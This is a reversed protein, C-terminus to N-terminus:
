YIEELVTGLSGRSSWESYDLTIEIFGGVSIRVQKPTPKIRSRKVKASQLKWEEDLRKKFDSNEFEEHEQRLAELKEYLHSSGVITGHHIRQRM